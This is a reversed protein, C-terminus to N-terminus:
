KHTQVKKALKSAGHKQLWTNVQELEKKFAKSPQGFIERAKKALKIARNKDGDTTVLARALGFLALGHPKPDCTRKECISLAQELPKRAQKSRGQRLLLDGIELLSDGVEPHEPGVAAQYIDLARLHYELAGKYDGNKKLEDGMNYLPWALDPHKPGLVKEQITLANRYYELAADSEGLSSLSSGINNLALAALPHELSGIAKEYIALSRRFSDLAKVYDGKGFYMAGLTNILQAHVMEDGGAVALMVEANRAIALGEEFRSKQYGIVWVLLVMAYTSLKSDRSEGAALAAHQLTVEAKKFEGIQRLLDGLQYLVEAQVPRYNM